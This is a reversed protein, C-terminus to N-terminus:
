LKSSFEDSREILGSALKVGRMALAHCREIGPGDATQGSGVAHASFLEALARFDHRIITAIAHADQPVLTPNDNKRRFEGSSLDM